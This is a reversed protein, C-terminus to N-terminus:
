EEVVEIANILAYNVVPVFDLDIKGQPSAPIGHFVRILARNGGRAEKVIDFGKLLTTGDCYVDFVRSGVGSEPRAQTFFPESFYLTVTYRMGEIVPISYNFHGVRYSQYLGSDSSGEVQAGPIHRRRAGVGYEDPMWLQGLRDRYVTDRTILRIPRMKGPAGPFIELANLFSRGLFTLHLAGDSAPSIDKFIKVTATNVGDADSAIDLAPVPLSNVAMTVMRQSETGTEAFYLHLEYTGPSLPIDYVFQGERGSWFLEPDLSRQIPVPGRRFTAGGRFFRDSLWVRGLKDSYDGHRDGTAIRIVAEDLTAIPPAAPVPAAGRRAASGRGAAALWWCVSFLLAAGAVWALKAKIPNPAQSATAAQPQDPPSEAGKSDKNESPGLEAQPVFQPIYQGGPLVIRVEHDRGESEYYQKLRKRLQHTDVRVLSDRQPDFSPDRGLADLGIGFETIEQALGQFCKECLYVLLRSLKPSRNFIDSALVAALEAKNRENPQAGGNRGLASSTAMDGSWNGKVTQGAQKLM